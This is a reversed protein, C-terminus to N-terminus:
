VSSRSGGILRQDGRLGLMSNAKTTQAQRSRVASAKTREALLTRNISRWWNLTFVRFIRVRFRGSDCGRALMSQAAPAMLSAGCGIAGFPLFGHMTEYGCGRHHGSQRGNRGDSVSCANWGHATRGACDDGHLLPLLRRL